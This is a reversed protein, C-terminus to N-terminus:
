PLERYEEQGVTSALPVRRQVYIHVILNEFQHLSSLCVALDKTEPRTLSSEITHADQKESRGVTPSKRM